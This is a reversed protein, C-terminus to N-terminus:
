IKRTSQRRSGCALPENRKWDFWVCSARVNQATDVSSFILQSSTCASVWLRMPCNRDFASRRRTDDIMQMRFSRFFVFACFTFSVLTPKKGDRFVTAFAHVSQMVITSRFPFEIIYLNFLFKRSLTKWEVTSPKQTNDCGDNKLSRNKEHFEFLQICITFM